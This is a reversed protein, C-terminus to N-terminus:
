PQRVTHELSPLVCPARAPSLRRWWACHQDILKKADIEESAIDGESTITVGKAELTKKVLEKTADTVAHPKIFVFAKTLPLSLILSSM